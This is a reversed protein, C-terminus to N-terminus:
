LSGRKSIAAVSSRSLAFYGFALSNEDKSVARTNTRIHGMLSTAVGKMSTRKTPYLPSVKSM